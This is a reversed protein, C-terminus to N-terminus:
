VYYGVVSISKLPRQRATKSSHILIAFFTVPVLSVDLDGSM